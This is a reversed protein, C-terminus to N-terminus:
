GLRGKFLEAPMESDSQSFVRCQRRHGIRDLLSNEVAKGVTFAVRRCFDGPCDLPRRPRRSRPKQTEDPFAAEDLDTTSHSVWFAPVVERVEFM